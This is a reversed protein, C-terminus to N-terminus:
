LFYLSSILEPIIIGAYNQKLIQIQKMVPIGFLLNWVCTSHEKIVMVVKLYKQLTDLIYRFCQM